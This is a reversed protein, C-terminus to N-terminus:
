QIRRLSLKKLAWIIVVGLAIVLLVILTIIIPLMMIKGTKWFYVDRYVTYICTDDEEINGISGINM